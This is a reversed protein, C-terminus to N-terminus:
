RPSSSSALSHVSSSAIRQRARVVECEECACVCDCLLMRVVPRRPELADMTANVRGLGKDADVSLVSSIAVGDPSTTDSALLLLLVPLGASLRRTEAAVTHEVGMRLGVRLAECPERTPSYLWEGTVAVYGRRGGAAIGFAGLDAGSTVVSSRARTAFPIPLAAIWGLTLSCGFAEGGVANVGPKCARNACIRVRSSPLLNLETLVRGGASHIQVSLRFLLWCM